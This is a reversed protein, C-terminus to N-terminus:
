SGGESSPSVRDWGRGVLVPSSFVCTQRKKKILSHFALINAFVKSSLFVCERAEQGRRRVIRRRLHATADFCCPAMSVM